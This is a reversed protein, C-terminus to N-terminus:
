GPPKAGVEHLLEEASGTVPQFYKAGFRYIRDQEVENLWVIHSRVRYTTGDKTSRITLTIPQGVELRQDTEFRVGSLSLDRTVGTNVVTGDFTYLVDFQAHYREHARKDLHAARVTGKGAVKAQYMATDAASIVEAATAGHNPYTALGASFRVDVREHLKTRRIAEVLREAVVMAGDADTQPMAVLFEEGGYRVAIDEARLQKLLFNGFSKLVQDGTEHGLSDNTAKFDDLDILLISLTFGHRHARNLERELFENLFRRNHLGTLEDVTAFQLTGTYTRAEVIMPSELRVNTKTFYDLLATRYDVSRRLMQELRAKHEGALDLAQAAEREELELDCLTRLVTANIHHSDAYAKRLEAIVAQPDNDSRSLRALIEDRLSLM